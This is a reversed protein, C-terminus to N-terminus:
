RASPARTPQSSLLIEKNFYPSAISRAEISRVIQFIAKEVPAPLAAVSQDRKSDASIPNVSLLKVNFRGQYESVLFLALVLRGDRTKLAKEVIRSQAQIALM